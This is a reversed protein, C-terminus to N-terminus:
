GKPLATDLLGRKLLLGLHFRVDDPARACRAATTAVLDGCTAWDPKEGLVAFLADIIERHILPLLDDYFRVPRARVAVTRGRENLRFRHTPGVVGTAYHAYWDLYRSPPGVRDAQGRRREAASSPEAAAEALQTAWLQRWRAHVLASAYTEARRRGAAGLAARIEPTARLLQRLAATLADTDVWASQSTSLHDANREALPSLASIRDLGPMLWIPVLVGNVGHEVLERYPGWDSTIAPLGCAMAELLAIGFTECVIDGPLVFLDSAAYYLPRLAPAAEGRIILRHALDAGAERLLAAYGDPYERGVILLHDGAASAAIFAEVLPLLDAKTYATIRGFFLVIRGDEPLGLLQRARRRGEGDVPQFRESDIACPIVELRFPPNATPALDEMVKGMVVRHAPSLCVVADYPVPEASAMRRLADILPRSEGTHTDCCIAMPGRAFRDRLYRMQWLTEPDLGLLIRPRGDAWVEAVTHIPLFRLFDQGARQGLLNRAAEALASPRAMLRPPLFVELAELDADRACRQLLAATALTAGHLLLGEGEPHLYELLEIYISVILGM